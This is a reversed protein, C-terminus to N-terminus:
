SAEPLTFGLGARAAQLKRAEIEPGVETYRGTVTSDEHGVWFHILADPVGQLRLHTVRFRRLSHFGGLIGCKVLEQRYFGESKLFQTGLGNDSLTKSLFENLEPALDVERNGAETKVPVTKGGTLYGGSRQTRVIIKSQEPLWVTGWGNDPHATITVALAENVRLGSGALLAVLARMPGSTCKIADSVAQASAIPRRQQKKDIIPADIFDTDWVYPYLQEGDQNKASARIDKVNNLNRTITAPSLGQQKLAAALDKLVTNGVTDLPFNGIFPLVNKELQSKYSKATEPRFPSRNRTLGKQFWIEYQERLSPAASQQRLRKTVSKSISTM